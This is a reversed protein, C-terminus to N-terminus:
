VSSCLYIYEELTPPTNFLVDYDKAMERRRLNISINTVKFNEDFSYINRILNM